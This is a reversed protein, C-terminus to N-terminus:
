RRGGMRNATPFDGAGLSGAVGWGGRMIRRWAADFVSAREKAVGGLFEGTLGKGAVSGFDGRKLDQGQSVQSTRGPPRRIKNVLDKQIAAVTQKRKTKNISTAQPCVDGRVSDDSDKALGGAEEACDDVLGALGEVFDASAGRASACERRSSPLM